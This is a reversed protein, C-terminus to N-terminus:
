FHTILSTFIQHEMIDSKLDPQEPVISQVDHGYTLSYAIDIISKGVGKGMSFGSGLSVTYYDDPEGAAPRQEWALGVRIPIEASPRVVLYEMGARLSWTDDLPNEKHVSGDLPNIRPDGEAKFSFDSWLTQSM